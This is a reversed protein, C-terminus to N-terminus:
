NSDVVWFKGGATKTIKARGKEDITVEEDVSSSEDHRIDNDFIRGTIKVSYSAKFTREGIKKINLDSIQYRIEDFVAFSNHLYNRLDSLNTGDGADWGTAIFGMVRSENKSQYAQTFNQYLQRVTAEMGAPAANEAAAPKKASLQNKLGAVHAALAADPVLALSAEYSKVAKDLAGSKEEAEGQKRAALAAARTAITKKLEALHAALDDDPLQKISSEYSAAAQDLLGKKEEGEGEKRLARGNTIRNRIEQIEVEFAQKFPYEPHYAALAKEYMAVADVLKNQKMLANGQGRLIDAEANKIRVDLNHISAGLAQWDPGKYLAASEEYKSKATKWDKIDKSTELAAAEKRLAAARDINKQAQIHGAQLATMEDRTKKVKPDDVLKLSADYSAISKGLLDIFTKQTGGNMVAGRYDQYFRAGDGALQGARIATDDASSAAQKKDDSTSTSKGKDSGKVGSASTAAAAAKVTDPVSSKDDPKKAETKADEAKKADRAKIKDKIEKVLAPAETGETYAKVAAQAPDLAEDLKDQAEFARAKAILAAAETKQKEKEAKAKAKAEDDDSVTVEFSAKDTGLVIGQSNKVEVTAEATGKESRNLMVESSFSGGGFGTGSNPKWSYNVTDKPQPTVSVKVRVNQGTKIATKDEVLGVGEKWVMPKPGLPGVVEAKVVFPKATVKAEASGLDEGSHPVRGNVTIKAEKSDTLYFTAITADKSESVLKANASLEWRFDMNATDPGANVTATLEEGALPSTKSLVLKLEPKVIDLELQDSSGLTSASGGKQELVDVWVKVKGPKMFKATTANSKDEYPTFAVEPHPQWRYLLAEPTKGGITTVSASFGAASGVTINNGSPSTKSITVKTEEVNLDISASGLTYRAGKVTVSLTQKGGATALVTVTQGKGEINGSWSYSFPEDAPMTNEVTATATTTEGKRLSTRSVKLVVKPLEKPKKSDGSTMQADPSIKYSGIMGQIEAMAQEVQQVTFPMDDWWAPNGLVMGGGSVSYSIDLTYAGNYLFGAGAAGGSTTGVDVYGWPNGGYRSWPAREAMLGTFGCLEFKQSKAGNREAWTDIAKLSEAQKYFVSTPRGAAIHLTATVSASKVDKGGESRTRVAEKRTFDVPGGEWTGPRVTGMSVTKAQVTVTELGLANGKLDRVYAGIEVTGDKRVQENGLQMTAQPVTTEGFNSASIICEYPSFGYSKVQSQLEAPISISVDFKDMATLSGPVKLGLSHVTVEYSAQAVIATTSGQQYQWVECIFKFKGPTKPCKMQASVDDKWGAQYKSGWSNPQRLVAGTTEERIGYSIARSMIKSGEVVAKVYLDGSGVLVDKPSDFHITIGTEKPQLVNIVKSTESAFNWGGYQDQKILRATLKVPQLYGQQLTYTGSLGKGILNGDLLWQLQETNKLTSTGLSASFSISGADEVSDPATISVTGSAEEEPELEATLYQDKMGSVSWLKMGAAKVEASYPETKKVIFSLEVGTSKVTQKTIISGNYKGEIKELKRGDKAKVTVSVAQMDGYKALLAEVDSRFLQSFFCLGAFEDERRTYLKYEMIRGGESVLNGDSNKKDVAELVRIFEYADAGEFRAYYGRFQKDHDSISKDGIAQARSMFTEPVAIKIGADSSGHKLAVYYKYMGAFSSANMLVVTGSGDDDGNYLLVSENKWGRIPKLEPYDANISFYLTLEGEIGPYELLIKDKIKKDVGLQGGLSGQRSDALKKNLDELAGVFGDTVDAYGKIITGMLPIEGTFDQMTDLVGKIKKLSGTVSGDTKPNFTDMFEVAKDVKGLLESGSEFQDKLDSLKSYVGSDRIKRDLSSLTYMYGFKGQKDSPISALLKASLKSKIKEPINEPISIGTLESLKEAASDIAGLSEKTLETIGEIGQDQFEKSAAKRWTSVADNFKGFCDATKDVAGKTKDYVGKFGDYSEKFSDYAAQDASDAAFVPALCFVVFAFCFTKRLASLM